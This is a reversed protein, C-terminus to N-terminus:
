SDDEAPPPSQLPNQLPSTGLPNDLKPAVPADLPRVPAAGPKPPAASKADSKADAAPGPGAGGGIGPAAPRPSAPPTIEGSDGDEDDSGLHGADAQAGGHPRGGAEDAEDMSAPHDAEHQMREDITRLRRYIAATGRGAADDDGARATGPLLLAM